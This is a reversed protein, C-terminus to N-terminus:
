GVLSFLKLGLKFIYNWLPELRVNEGDTDVKLVYLFNDSEDLLLCSLLVKAGLDTNFLLEGHSDFDESKVIADDGHLDNQDPNLLGEVLLVVFVAVTLLFGVVLVLRSYCRHALDNLLSWLLFGATFVTSSSSSCLIAGAFVALFIDEIFLLFLLRVIRLTAVVGRHINRYAPRLSSPLFACLTPNLKLKLIRQKPRLYFPGLM